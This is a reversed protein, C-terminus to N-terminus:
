KESGKKDMLVLSAAARLRHATEKGGLLKVLVDLAPGSDVGTLALRLPMFLHRGKKGTRRSLERTYDRWDVSANRNMASFAQEALRFFDGGAKKLVRLGEEDLRREMRWPEFILRAWLLSEAPFLINDKIAIAFAHTREVPVRDQLVASLWRWVEAATMREIARKQWHRLQHEEYKAAARVLRRTDFHEILETPNLLEDTAYSCGLRALYNLLAAPLYGEDLLEGIARSGNRKSLPLGDEGLLISIHGYVPAQFGLASLLLLQRPTNTLHDEGRLVCSIKMLADDIANAFMFSAEGDKKRIIFDGLHRAQFVQKGRVMDTFSLVAEDAVRLRLAAREGAAQRAAAEEKTLSRCIGSYRPPEGAALQRKRMRKLDVAACFCPYALDQEELQSYYRAYIENRRSQCYPAYAGDVVPGEDWHIGLRDLDACLQATYKQISRTRDTDEIRLVFSGGAQRVFLYNFLATRCSGAHMLGTPSPAFRAREAM